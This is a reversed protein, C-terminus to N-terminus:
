LKVIGRGVLFDVFWTEAEACSYSSWMFKAIGKNWMGIVHLIIIGYFTGGIYAIVYRWFTNIDMVCLFFVLVLTDVTIHYISYELCRQKIKERNRLDIKDTNKLDIDTLKKYYECVYKNQVNDQIYRKCSALIAEEHKTM